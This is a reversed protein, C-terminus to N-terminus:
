GIPYGDVGIKRKPKYQKGQEPARALALLASMRTYSNAFRLNDRLRENRTRPELDAANM